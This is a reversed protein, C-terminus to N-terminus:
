SPLLLQQIRVWWRMTAVNARWAGWGSCLGGNEGVEDDSDGGRKGEPDSSAVGRLIWTEGASDGAVTIAARHLYRTPRPKSEVEAGAGNRGAAGFVSAAPLHLQAEDAAGEFVMVHRIWRAPPPDGNVNSGSSAGDRCQLKEGLQNLRSNQEARALAENLISSHPLPLVPKIAHIENDRRTGERSSPTSERKHNQTNGEINPGGQMKQTSPLSTISPGTSTADGSGAPDHGAGKSRHACECGWNWLESVYRDSRAILSQYTASADELALTDQRSDRSFLGMLIEIDNALSLTPTQTIPVLAGDSQDALSSHKSDDASARMGNQSQPRIDSRNADIGEVIEDEGTPDIPRDPIKSNQASSFAHQDEKKSPSVATGLPKALRVSQFNQSPQATVKLGPATMESISKLWKNLHGKLGVSVPSKRAEIGGLGDGILSVFNVREARGDNPHLASGAASHSGPNNPLAGDKEATFDPAPWSLFAVADKTFNFRHEAKPSVIGPGDRGSKASGSLSASAAKITTPTSARRTPHSSEMPSASRVIQKWALTASQEQPTNEISSASRVRNQTRSKIMENSLHSPSSYIRKHINASSPTENAEESPHLSTQEPQAANEEDRHGGGNAGQSPPTHIANDPNDEDRDVERRFRLEELKGMLSEIKTHISLEGDPAARKQSEDDDQKSSKISRQSVKEAKLFGSKTSDLLTLVSELLELNEVRQPLVTEKVEVMQVNQRLRDNQGSTMNLISTGNGDGSVSFQSRESANAAHRSTTKSNPTSRTTFSSHRLRLQAEVQHTSPSPPPTAVTAVSTLTSRNNNASSQTPPPRRTAPDDHNLVTAASGRGNRAESHSHSAPSSESTPQPPSSDDTHPFPFRGDRHVSPPRAATPPDTNRDHTDKHTRPLGNISLSALLM